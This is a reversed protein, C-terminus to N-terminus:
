AARRTVAFAAGVGSAVVNLFYGFLSGEIVWGSALAALHLVAVGTALLFAVGKRARVRCILAM